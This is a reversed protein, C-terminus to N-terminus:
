GTGLLHYPTGIPDPPRSVRHLARTPFPKEERVELSRFDQEGNGIEFM